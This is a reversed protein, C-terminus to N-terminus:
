RKEARTNYAIGGMIALTGTKESQFHLIKRFLNAMKM